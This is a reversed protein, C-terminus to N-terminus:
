FPLDDVNSEDIERKKAAKTPDARL